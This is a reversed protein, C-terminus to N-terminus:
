HEKMRPIMFELLITYSTLNLCSLSCSSVFVSVFRDHLTGGDRSINGEVGTRIMLNVTECSRGPLAEGASSGNGEEKSCQCVSQLSCCHIRHAPDKTATPSILLSLRARPNSSLRSLEGCKKVASDIAKETCSQSSKQFVWINGPVSCKTALKVKQKLLGAM